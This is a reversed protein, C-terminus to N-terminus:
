PNKYIEKMRKLLIRKNDEQDDSFLKSFKDFTESEIKHSLMFHLFFSL